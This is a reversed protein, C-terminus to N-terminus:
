CSSISLVTFSLGTVSEELPNGLQPICSRSAGPTNVRKGLSSDYKSPSLCNIRLGLEEEVDEEELEFSIYKDSLAM